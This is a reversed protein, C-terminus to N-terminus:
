PHFQKNESLKDITIINNEYTSMNDTMVLNIRFPKMISSFRSCNQVVGIQNDFDKRNIKRSFSHHQTEIPSQIMISGHITLQM